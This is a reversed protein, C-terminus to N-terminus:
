LPSVQVELSHYAIILGLLVMTSVSILTKLATSYFDGQLLFHIYALIEKVPQKSPAAAEQDLDYQLHLALETFSPFHLGM